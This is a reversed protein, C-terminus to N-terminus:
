SSAGKVFKLSLSNVCHRTNTSTLKEGIFVLKRLKASDIRRYICFHKYTPTDVWRKKNVVFNDSKEHLSKLYDHSKVITRVDYENRKGKTNAEQLYDAREQPSLEDYRVAAKQAYLFEYSPMVTGDAKTIGNAVINRGNGKLVYGTHECVEAEEYNPLGHLENEEAMADSLPDIDEAIYPYMEINEPANKIDSVKVCLRKRGVKDIKEYFKIM